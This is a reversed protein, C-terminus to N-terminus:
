ARGALLARVVQLDAPTTVKINEYAGMYVRVEGGISEVLAADDTVDQPSRAHAEALLARRFVQPTQVAWLEDRSLTTVVKPGDVQKITDVVPVAAIAAGTDQAAALGDEVLKTTLLPRAGDHVVVWEADGVADLAARVSDQRRAGGVVIRAEIELEGAPKLQRHFDASLRALADADEGSIILSNAYIGLKLANRSSAAKGEVSRPGTSALANARNAEIQAPSSM